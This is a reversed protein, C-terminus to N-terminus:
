LPRGQWDTVLLQNEAYWRNFFSDICSLDKRLLEGLKTARRQLGSKTLFFRLKHQPFGAFILGRPPVLRISGNSNPPLHFQLADLSRLESISSLRPSLKFANIHEQIWPEGYVIHVTIAELISDNKLRCLEYTYGRHDDRGYWATAYPSRTFGNKELAPIGKELFISNRMEVLEKKSAKYIMMKERHM